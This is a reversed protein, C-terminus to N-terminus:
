QIGDVDFQNVQEVSDTLNMQQRNYEECDLQISFNSPKKFKGKTIGLEEDAYVKKMFIEWIPMAMRAGQGLAISKFHISRDDGGVWAGAVLDNTVGMFWGDSFNQTTGTKAGVENDTRLERDLGLATGGPLETAGKLMHLMAYATESSLAEGTKPVFQKLVKGNKDEIRDIYFPKTYFGDNVFTSYAGVLEYVSVDSTGLCLAPVAQLPSEIGLRKAYNVVTEPGIKRMVYATGSNLSQAMAQRITMTEGTYRGTSNSPTWTPPDGVVEFTVPVDQIQYCPSYGNDIAAAYVLPKFTSGPQRRGQKVHDYKFYKYNIGGVWAKIHGNHPDMAMFGTNLFNKFYKISDITSFVTDVEGEWSFVTMPKKENLKDFIKDEDNGYEKKLQKYYTTKKAENILFDKIENGEEDRWPNQGDWHEDFLKQQYAMHTEVAEEAYKQMRSDITTYIKLGDEYLDYGNERSWALLDWLITGRFYTALGDNHNKVDYDLEIPKARLSDFAIDDIYGYKHLQGLVTNRRHFANKPEYVPSYLNPNKCLGVLVAAEEIKLQDPTTNFFTAAATKIGFANSGFEFTNLYMAIIEKKTYSQELKVAVIWEKMKAIVLGLVPVDNLSGNSLDSRTRFLIKALQQTITSGGGSSKDFLLVSKFFVRGLGYLDIGSHEIYRVDETAILANVVNPSLEDFTVQSRNYRFYKGMEVNDAFYLVSSLDSKPNELSKLSPLEGYWGNLNISISYIFLSIALIGGFFVIWLATIIKKTISKKKVESTM